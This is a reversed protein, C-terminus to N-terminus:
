GSGLRKLDSASDVVAKVRELCESAAATPTRHGFESRVEFTGGATVIRLDAHCSWTDNDAMRLRLRAYRGLEDLLEELMVPEELRM